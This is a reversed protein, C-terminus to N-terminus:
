KELWASVEREIDPLNDVIPRLGPHQALVSEEGQRALEKKLERIEPILKNRAIAKAKGQEKQAAARRGVGANLEAALCAGRFDSYTDDAMFYFHFLNPCLGYACMVDDTEADESCPLVSSKICYGGRKGRIAFRDGMQEVLERPSSVVSVGGGEELFGLIREKVEAGFRGGLPEADKYIMQDIAAEAAAVDEQFTDKPRVYYGAMAGTLHGMYRRIVELNYGHEYLYTCTHVRYQRFSPISLLLNGSSSVRAKPVGDWDQSCAELAIDALLTRYRYRFTSHAVPTGERKESPSGDADVMYLFDDDSADHYRVRLGRATEFAEQCLPNARVRFRRMNAANKSPKRSDFEIWAIERGDAAAGVHLEGCRIGLLDQPRLGLQSLIVVMSATVRDNFRGGEDRMTAVCASLIANFLGEPINPTKSKEALADRTRSAKIARRNLEGVDAAISIGYNGEIFGLVKAANAYQVYSWGISRKDTEVARQIDWTTVLSPSDHGSQAAVKGYLRTFVSVEASVTSVKARGHMLRHLAFFKCYGRMPDKLGRFSIKYSGSNIGKYYPNFDWVDDAFGIKGDNAPVYDVLEALVRRYAQEDDVFSLCPHDGWPIDRIYDLALNGDIM